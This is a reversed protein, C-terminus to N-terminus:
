LTLKKELLRASWRIFLYSVVWGGLMPYFFSPSFPLWAVHGKGLFQDFFSSHSGLQAFIGDVLIYYVVFCIPILPRLGTYKFTATLIGLAVAFPSFAIMLLYWGFGTMVFNVLDSMGYQGEILTIYAAFLVILVYSAAFLLFVKSWSAAFKAQSLQKRPYPLTLWWGSTNNEWERKISGYGFFFIFYPLAFTIFWTGQLKFSGNLATWTTYGILLFLFVAIYVFSWVKSVPRCSKRRRWLSFEHKFLPIFINNGKM